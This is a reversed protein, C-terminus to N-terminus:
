QSARLLTAIWAATGNEPVVFSASLGDPNGRAQPGRLSSNSPLCVSKANTSQKALNEEVKSQGGRFARVSLSIWDRIERRYHQSVNAACGSKGRDQRPHRFGSLLM